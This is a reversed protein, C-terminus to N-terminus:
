LEYYNKNKNSHIKNHLKNTHHFFQIKLMMVWETKLTMHDKMRIHHNPLFM